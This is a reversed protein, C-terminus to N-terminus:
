NHPSSSTTADGLGRRYWSLCLTLVELILSPCILCIDELTTDSVKKTAPQFESPFNKRLWATYGHQKWEDLNQRKIPRGGFHESVTAQVEPLTNLWAVLRVIPEHNRLRTNLEERIHDPLKAIKGNGKM